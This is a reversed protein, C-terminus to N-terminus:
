LNKTNFVAFRFTVNGGAFDILTRLQDGDYFMCGTTKSFLEYGSFAFGAIGQSLTLFMQDSTFFNARFNTSTPTVNYYGSPSYYLPPNSNDFENLQNQSYHQNHVLPRFEASGTVIQASQPSYIKGSPVTLGLSQSQKSSTLSVTHDVFGEFFQFVTAM